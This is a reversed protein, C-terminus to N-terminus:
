RELVRLGRMMQHLSDEMDRPMVRADTGLGLDYLVNALPDVGPGAGVASVSEHIWFNSFDDDHGAIGEFGPGRAAMKSWTDLLNSGAELAPKAHRELFVFTKRKADKYLILAGIDWALKKDDAIYTMRMSLEGDDDVKLVEPAITIAVRSSSLSLGRLPDVAFKINDFLAARLDRRALYSQWQPITGTYELYVYNMLFKLQELNADIDASGVVRVLGVYGEPTPLAFCLVYADIYGLPWLTIQWKRGFRDQEAIQRQPNGFSTIRISQNGVTRPPKLGKLLLDMFLQPDRYLSDDFAAKPRKIRFVSTNLTNGTIVLGDGPLNQTSEGTASFTDWVDDDGQQVFTPVASEYVTALLKAANGNPFLKDRQSDILANLDRRASHALLEAFTRSFDGFSKPLPFEGKLLAVQADRTTPLKRSYRLDYTAAHDTADLVLGIPLAYNLNENASKARVVGIVQGSADLLPGGSNGPSAAASFRLWKWRGDQEEPTESTLLGDRIVVGEGLANGVALVPEDIQHERSIQLPQAPPAGSVSFVAFDQDISYKLIKDLAYVHGAVDRLMPAGFQSGIASQIVHGASVYSNPGIAFATGISWYADSRVAYPELEMPLPKEYRLPDHETKRLVVEFTAGRVTRQLEPSPLAPVASHARVLLAAVCLSSLGVVIRNKM